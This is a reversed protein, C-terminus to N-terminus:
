KNYSPSKQSEAYDSSLKNSQSVTPSLNRKGTFYDEIWSKLVILRNSLGPLYYLHIALWLLWAFWGKLPIRGLLYAVGANRAIIAATGKNFYNFPKPSLKQLQRKLNSAVATGQQLAEPAIGLLPKGDHEVYAVDGVAYVEPYDLLQLTSRVCVQERKATSIKDADSPLNAEVGATWIITATEIITGEDLEVAGPMVSRVRTQFHIKVGRRRLQRGTYDGLHKPFDALLRQKSHILIIRVQKPDLETYEQTLIAQTLEQLAGALEVGTAGGGVITFTLLQQRRDWDNCTVAREINSLIRDRLAVADNLTRLPYTYKPAGDVGLFKTKSGTAIVLYDYNINERDTTIFKRKFDIALVEAQCFRANNCSSLYKKLPYAVTKPPIFGTAVQYLLPVFTHYNNRDILLVEADVKALNAVARLGAFGAGIIVIKPKKYSM